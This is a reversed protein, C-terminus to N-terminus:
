APNGLTGGFAGVFGTGAGGCIRDPAGNFAGGDRRGGGGSRGPDPM